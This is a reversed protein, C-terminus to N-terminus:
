KALVPDRSVTESLGQLAPSNSNLTLYTGFTCDYFFKVDYADDAGESFFTVTSTIKDDTKDDTTHSTTFVATTTTETNDAGLLVAAWGPKMDTINTQSNTNITKDETTTDFTVQVIDGMPGTGSGQHAAPNAPVFRPPGVLPPSAAVAPIRRTTTLPDQSLLSKITDLDLGLRPAGGAALSQQEQQLDQVANAALADFGLIHIDVEGNIAMWIAKVNSLYVIRDGPGPGLGAESMFQDMSSVALTLSHDDEVTVASQDSPPPSDGFATLINSVLSLEGSVQQTANATSDNADQAAGFLATGL